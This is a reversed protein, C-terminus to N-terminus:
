EQFREVRGLEEGALVEIHGEQLGKADDTALLVCRGVMLSVKRRLPSLFKTIQRALM